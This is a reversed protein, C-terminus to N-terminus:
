EYIEYAQNNFVFQVNNGMSLFKNIGKENNLLAFYEDTNFQVRQINKLEKQTINSDVWQNNNNYFARGQFNRVQPSLNKVRGKKDTKQLREQGPSIGSLSSNNNMRDIERSSQVSKKGVEENMGKYEEYSEQVAMDLNDDKLDFVRFEPESPAPTGGSGNMEMKRRHGEAGWRDPIRTQPLEDELILFSTYPTIIGHKKALSVVEDVLEKDEGHLRIQDLLYGVRRSAWIAPLFDHGESAKSMDLDFEFRQEKGNMKGTLIAKGKSGKVGEFRGFLIMSSGLFIDPMVKPYIKSTKIGQIDLSVDTLVPSSVKNYFNSVKIEIDESPSIYSRYARTMETIKDLLHTNIDDGIGFTFIKANESNMKKIEHLLEDVRTLGITPKGDSLFVIMHPRKGSNPKKFAYQMAESVNTGGTANMNEIFKLAVGVNQDNSTRLEDFLFSAETSFRVVNFRDGDNLSQVCFNLAKKAQDIKAGIMSGSADLIFTIDKEVIDLDEMKVAPTVNLYFYGDEGALAPYSLSSMGLDNKATSFYLKFDNAPQYNVGEFGAVGSYDGTRTSEIKFTPSYIDKLEETTTLNIKFSLNEIPAPHNKSLNMRYQFETLNDEKHLIERYSIRIKTESEPEIPFIRVKFLDQESYELLAPDKQRRVIEEYIKRAKAADLLEASTEVGNVWMTFKEIVAGKPIPFFFEGEMRRRSPNYFSQQTETIAVQDTIEVEVRQSRIQLAYHKVPPGGPPMIRLEDQVLLFGGATLNPSSLLSSLCLLCIIGLLGLSQTLVTRSARQGQRVKKGRHIIQNGTGM